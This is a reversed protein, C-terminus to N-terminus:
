LVFWRWEIDAGASLGIRTSNGPNAPPDVGDDLIKVTTQTAALDIGDAAGDLGMAQCLKAPGNTLDRDRLPSKRPKATRRKRMETLGDIPEISRILVAGCEGDPETVANACWHMGYTFYVYLHGPPGYMVETRPTVGRYGHSGPDDAGRYAETETIRGSLVDAGGVPRVVLVKNLLEQAVIVSNRGYFSRDLQHAAPSM